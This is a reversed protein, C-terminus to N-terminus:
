DAALVELTTFCIEATDAVAVDHAAAARYDRQELPLDLVAFREGDGHRLHRTEQEREVLRDPQHQVRHLVGDAALNKDALGRGACDLCKSISDAALEARLAGLVLEIDGANAGAFFEVLYEDVFVLHLAHGLLFQEVGDMGLVLHRFM